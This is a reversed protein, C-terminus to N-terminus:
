SVYTVQVGKRYFGDQSLSAHACLSPDQSVGFISQSGPLDSHRALPFGFSVSWTLSRFQQPHLEPVGAGLRGTHGDM